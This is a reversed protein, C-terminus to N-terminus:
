PLQVPSVFDLVNIYILLLILALFGVANSINKVRQSVRKQLIIEPIIFLIRGGDLAPIPLLNLIGLSVTVSVVFALVNVSRSTGPILEQERAGEYVDYMGKYGVPRGTGADGRILQAPITLVALSHNYTARIGRPIAQLWHIDRIPNVMVIGIAGEGEPPDARPVLTVEREGGDRQITLSIEEGLHAYIEERLVMSDDVPVDNVSKVIDDPQLGAEQAPSGPATDLIQVTELDPVGVQGFIVAYIIVATLINMLPGSLLVTIRVWPSAAALGGEVEPDDEGKPRVFGGLPLWNLTYKTGGAKFLTLMRPPFGIGFEEVEVGFLRAALFHGLEHLIILGALVGIFQLLTSM